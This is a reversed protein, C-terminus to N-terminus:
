EGREAIGIFVAPNEDLMPHSLPKPLDLDRHTGSAREQDQRWRDLASHAELIEGLLQPNEVATIRKM